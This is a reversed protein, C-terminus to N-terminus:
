RGFLVTDSYLFETFSYEGIYFVYFECPYYILYLYLINYQFM